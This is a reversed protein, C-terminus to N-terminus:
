ERMSSPVGAKRAQERLEELQQKADELKKQKEALQDKYQADEKDWASANRLRNGADAYFAAARLRYERNAVDIERTMLDVQDQQAQIKQQWEKFTKQKQATADDAPKKDAAASKAADGQGAAPTAPQASAAADASAAPAADPNAPPTADAAEAPAQGVVSLKDDKPLNDNDFVKATPAQQDKHKRAQRAYDGLPASQARLQPGCLTALFTGVTVAFVIRKM